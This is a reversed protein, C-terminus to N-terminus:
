VEVTEDDQEEDDAKYLKNLENDEIRKCEDTDTLDEGPYNYPNTSQFQRAKEQAKATLSETEQGATPYTAQKLTTTPMTQQEM